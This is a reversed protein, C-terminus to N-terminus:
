NDFKTKSAFVTYTASATKIITYTYADYALVSGATPAVGGQWNLTFGAPTGVAVNDIKITSAYHATNNAVNVAVTVTMSQGVALLTNVSTTASTSSAHGFNPVWSGTTAVTYLFATSSSVNLTPAAGIASSSDITWSEKIGSIVPLTLTKNTLIETEDLEVITDVNNVRVKAPVNRVTM